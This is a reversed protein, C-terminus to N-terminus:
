ESQAPRVPSRRYEPPAVRIFAHAEMAHCSNCGATFIKFAEGFGEADEAEIVAEMQAVVDNMFYESSKAREPRRELALEITEYLEELQHEAYEWNEDTGAWYLESYRYGVEVMARGFGAFQREITELKEAESGQIWEGQAPATDGGGCSVSAALVAVFAAPLLIKRM